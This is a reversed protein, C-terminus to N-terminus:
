ANTRSRQKCDQLSSLIDNDADLQSLSQKDVIQGRSRPVYGECRFIEVRSMMDIHSLTGAWNVRSPPKHSGRSM